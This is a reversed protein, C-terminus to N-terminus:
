GRNIKYTMYGRNDQLDLHGKKKKKGLSSKLMKEKPNERMPYRHCPNIKMLFTRVLFTKVFFTKVLITKVLFTKVLIIKKKDGDHPSHCFKKKDGDHLAHCFKKKIVTTDLNAM